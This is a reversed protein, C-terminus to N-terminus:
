WKNIYLGVRVPVGVLCFWSHGDIHIKTDNM